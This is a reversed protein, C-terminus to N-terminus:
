CGSSKEPCRQPGRWVPMTRLRTVVMEYTTGRDDNYDQLAALANMERCRNFIHLRKRGFIHRDLQRFLECARKWGFLTCLAGTIDWAAARTNDFTVPNGDADRAEAGRCWRQEPALLALLQLPSPNARLSKGAATVAVVDELM